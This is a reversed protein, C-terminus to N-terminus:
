VLGETEQQLRAGHRFIAALAFMGLAVAFPWLPIEFYFPPQADASWELSRAALTMGIGSACQGLVAAALAVVASANFTRAVSRHFFEGVEARYAAVQIAWAIAAGATLSLLTGIFIALRPGFPVNEVTGICLFPTTTAAPASPDFPYTGDASCSPSRLLDANARVWEGILGDPTVLREGILNLVSAIAGLVLLGLFMGSLVRTAKVAISTNTRRRTVLVILAIVIVAAVGAWLLLIALGGWLDESTVTM